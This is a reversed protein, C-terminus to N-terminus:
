NCSCSLLFPPQRIKIKLLYKLIYIRIASSLNEQEREADIQTVLQNISLKKEAAIKKLQVFFEEELSISTSPRGAIIGSLKRM